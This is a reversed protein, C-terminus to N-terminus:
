TVYDSKDSSHLLSALYLAWQLRLRVLEIFATSEKLGCAANIHRTLRPRQVRMCEKGCRKGGMFTIGGGPIMM